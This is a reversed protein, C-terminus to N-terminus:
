RPLPDSVKRHSGFLQMSLIDCLISIWAVSSMRPFDCGDSWSTDHALGGHMVMFGYEASIFCVADLISQSPSGYRLCMCNGGLGVLQTVLSM